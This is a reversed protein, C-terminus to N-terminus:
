KNAPFLANRSIFSHFAALQFSTDLKLLMVKLAREAEKKSLYRVQRVLPNFRDM